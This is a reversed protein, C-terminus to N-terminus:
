LEAWVEKYLMMAPCGAFAIALNAAEDIEARSIGMTQAGKIHIALCPKCRQAVSLAIAMLKKARSDILNPQNALKMFEAFAATGNDATEPVSPVAHSCCDPQPSESMSASEKPESQGSIGQSVEVGLPYPGIINALGRGRVRLLTAPTAGSTHEAAVFQGIVSTALHGLAQMEAVFRDAAEPQLAILLGGSTQPDYIIPLFPITEGASRVWAMAYEENREIAGPLIDNDICYRAAALVPLREIDVEACVGSGRAMEVLHGALGFGTVDTCAHAGHEFMLRGADRNLETMAAAAATTDEPRLREIQSAFSVMGTGLPKTIVIVDGPQAGARQICRAPDIQGTVAFGCKIEDDLFSHGGVLACGAESLKAMAGRLITAMVDLNMDDAPFGIVSLATLPTGGMAYVDSLSNAAAIMGFLCPDDVCPTFVDVTQVLARAPAIRYIGADDGAATGVLVNPDEVPPLKSLVRQLDAQGIKSACGARRVTQTLPPTEDHAQMKEGACPCVNHKTFIDCPCPSAPNCVCHGLKISRAMVAKRRQLNVAM